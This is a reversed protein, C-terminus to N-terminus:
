SLALEKTQRVTFHTLICCVKWKFSFASQNNETTFIIKQRQLRFIGMPVLIEKCFLLEKLSMKGSKKRKLFKLGIKFVNPMSRQGLIDVTRFYETLDIFSCIFYLLDVRFVDQVETECMFIMRVAIIQQHFFVVLCINPM